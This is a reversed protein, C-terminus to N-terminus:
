APDLSQLSVVWESGAAESYEAAIESAVQSVAKVAPHTDRHCAVSVVLPPLSPGTCIKLGGIALEGRVCAPPIAAFGFGEKALQVISEVSPFSCVRPEADRGAFLARVHAQPSSTRSYTLLPVHDLDDLTLALESPWFDPRCVWRIPFETLPVVAIDNNGAALELPDNQILLDLKNERFQDRLNRATDVSVDPDVAPFRRTLSRILPTLWTHVVTEIAGIRVRGAPPADPRAALKMEREVALMREAQRVVQEGVTTLRLGRSGRHVLEVGLEEELSAIRQSTAAQTAHMVLATERFSKLRSLVVLTELFRTNM